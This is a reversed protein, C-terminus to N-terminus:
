RDDDQDRAFQNYAVRFLEGLAECTETTLQPDNSLLAVVVAVTDINSAPPGTRGARIDGTISDRESGM